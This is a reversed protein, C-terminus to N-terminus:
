RNLRKRFMFFVPIFVIWFIFISGLKDLELFIDAGYNSQSIQLEMYHSIPLLDRWILAFSNMNHIPFTVGLFAFSPATYVAGLSLTRAYDFGTVFFLLAMAQYAVVTLFMGFITVAFSGQFEWGLTGYIYFLYGIGLIMYALTFPLLKGIIKIEYDNTKFFEREKHNKFMSGFSVITAVVIFIQWISPLLASVLFLFYNQYTNFFPTIQLGIPAVANISADPIELDVLNKVYEIQASSQMVTSTLASTLIKGILIYQTNLMATVRPQTQLLTDKEFHPPIIVVGYVKAEKTLQIAEKLSTTNYAIKVTPSSELNTLLLRSLKSKDNDVVAIPMDHAVGKYFIAIILFFSLIPFVSILFLKYYSKRISDVEYMFAQSLIKFM